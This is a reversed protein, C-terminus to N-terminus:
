IDFIALTTKIMDNCHNIENKLNAKQMRDETKFYMVAAQRRSNFIMGLRRLSNEDVKSMLNLKDIEDLTKDESM